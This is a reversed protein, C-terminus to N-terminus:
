GSPWTGARRAKYVDSYNWVHSHTRTDLTTATVNVGVNTTPVTLSSSTYLAV